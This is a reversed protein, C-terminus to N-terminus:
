LHKLKEDKMELTWKFGLASWDLVEGETESCELLQASSEKTPVEMQTKIVGSVVIIMGGIMVIEIVKGIWERLSSEEVEKLVRELTADCFKVIEALYMVRKEEKRKLYILGTSPKDMISFSDHAKIGHFTLTSSEKFRDLQNHNGFYRKAGEEGKLLLLMNIITM